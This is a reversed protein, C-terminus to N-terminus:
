KTVRMYATGSTYKTDGTAAGYLGSSEAVAALKSIVGATFTNTNKTPDITVNMYGDSSVVGYGLGPDRDLYKDLSAAEGSPTGGKFEVPSTPWKDNDAYYMVCAAKINRMNAVAKAAQAKDTAAGISLMMMGALIGIIIIVILLEILTFGKAKRYKKMIDKM